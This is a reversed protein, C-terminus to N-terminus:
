TTLADVYDSWAQMMEKRETLYEAHNYAARVQNRESHALQREILDSRYGIENLYTSATARFDHGTIEKAAFGMYRLAANITSRSMPGRGDIGTFVFDDPKADKPILESLLSVVQKSLPVIHPGRMKMVEAPVDWRAAVLDFQGVRAARLEAQRPFAYLLFQIAKATELRGQYNTLRSLLLSMDRHSLPRAHITKPKEVAQRLPYTPDNDALGKIIAYRYVQSIMSKVKNAMSAFGADDLRKMIKLIHAPKITKIALSGIHTYAHKNLAVAIGDLYTQSQIGKKQREAMWSDAISQFSNLRENAAAARREKRNHAPHIGQKVLIKAEDRKRRADALSVVPYEGIAFLNEKKDIRYRYRWLKSGQSTVELYLGGGDSLKQSKAASKIQKIKADTLPM